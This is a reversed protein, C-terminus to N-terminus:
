FPAHREQLASLVRDALSTLLSEIRVMDPLHGGTLDITVENGDDLVMQWYVDTSSLVRLRITVDTQCGDLFLATQSWSVGEM